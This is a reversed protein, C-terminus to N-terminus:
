CSSGKSSQVKPPARIKMEKQAPVTCALVPKGNVSVLCCRYFRKGCAWRFAFSSDVNEYVYKLVDLVTHRKYPVKFKDYRPKADVEPDFRFLKVEALEDEVM